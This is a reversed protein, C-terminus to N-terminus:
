VLLAALAPGEGGLGREWVCERGGPLPPIKEPERRRRAEPARKPVEARRWSFRRRSTGKEASHSRSGGRGPPLSHTHSLPGPPSPGPSAPERFRRRVAATRRRPVQRARAGAVRRLTRAPPSTTRVLECPPIFKKM